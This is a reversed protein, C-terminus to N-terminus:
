QPVILQHAKTFFQRYTLFSAALSSFAAAGILMYMVVIQIQVAEIPSVGALILGTMAGPLAILGVTKTNDVIPTMGTMLATQLQQRSAQETTAGLALAAEIQAQHIKLDDRLRAMTVGTATMANGIIMGAIPIIAQLELPFVRLILLTGLTLTAAMAIAITAILQNHPIQQGRKGATYGAITVMLSLVGITLPLSNSEFLMELAYGIAILQVFARLVAVLMDQELSVQQWKSILMAFIVLALAGLIQPFLTLFETM